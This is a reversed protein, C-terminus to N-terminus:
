PDWPRRSPMKERTDFEAGELVAAHHAPTTPDAGKITCTDYAQAQGEEAPLVMLDAEDSGVKRRNDGM